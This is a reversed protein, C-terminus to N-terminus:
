VVKIKAVVVAFFSQQELWLEADYLPAYSVEICIGNGFRRGELLDGIQQTIDLLSEIENETARKVIGIDIRVIREKLGGRAIIKSELSHPVVMACLTKVTGLNRNPILERVCPLTVGGVTQGNLFATIQDALEIVLSSM